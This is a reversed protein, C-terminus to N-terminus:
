KNGVIIGIAVGAVIGTITKVAGRHRIARNQDERVKIQIDKEGIIDDKLKITTDKLKLRREYKTAMDLNADKLGWIQAASEVLLEEHIPRVVLAELADRSADIPMCYATDNRIPYLRAVVTDLEAPRYRSFDKSKVQAQLRAIKLDREEIKKVLVLSDAKMIAKLSDELAQVRRVSDAKAEVRAKSDDVKNDFEKTDQCTNMLIAIGYGVLVAAILIIAKKM